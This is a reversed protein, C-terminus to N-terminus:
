SKVNYILYKHSVSENSPHKQTNPINKRRNKLIASKLHFSNKSYAYHINNRHSSIM